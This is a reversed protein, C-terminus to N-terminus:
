APLIQGEIDRLLQAAPGTRNRVICKKYAKWLEGLFPDDVLEHDHLDPDKSPIEAAGISRRRLLTKLARLFEVPARPEGRRRLELYCTWLVAEPMWSSQEPSLEDVGDLVTARRMRRLLDRTDGALVPQIHTSMRKVEQEAAM